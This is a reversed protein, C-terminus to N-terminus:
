QMMKQGKELNAVNEDVVAINILIKEHYDDLGKSIDKAHQHLKNVGELIGVMKLEIDEDIMNIMELM